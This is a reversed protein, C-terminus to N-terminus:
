PRIDRLEPPFPQPLSHGYPADPLDLGTAAIGAQVISAITAVKRGYMFAMEPATVAHDTMALDVRDGHAADPDNGTVATAGWQSVPATIGVPLMDNIHFWLNLAALATEQGGNRSAGTAIAGGVKLRLRKERVGLGEVREMFAKCLATPSGFYVPTGVIIAAAALLKGYLPRMDDDIVCRGQDLCPGCGDCQGITRGALSVYGTAVGPVRGAGLLAAQVLISTNGRRPSASVGLVNVAATTVTV